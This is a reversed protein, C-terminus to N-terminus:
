AAEIELRYQEPSEGTWGAFARSFSSPEHYGVLFAIETVSMTSNKLYHRALLERSHNLQAQFTTNEQKLKRQLTRASVFLKGAVEDITAKALPLLEMLASRVAASFSEDRELEDLRKRMEPEFFEWASDNRLKFPALTDAISFTIRTVDAPSLECGFFERYGPHDLQASTEITLPVISNGTAHRMLGVFFILESALIQDHLQISDDAPSIQVSYTDSTETLSLRLPGILPKYEKLREVCTQYDPACLAAMVPPSMLNFLPVDLLKLPIPKDDSETTAMAEWLRFYEAASLVISKQSLLNHPLKARQLLDTENLGLYAFLYRMQHDITFTRKPTM